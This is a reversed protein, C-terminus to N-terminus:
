PQGAKLRDLVARYGNYPMDRLFRAVRTVTTTSAGVKEAIDRYSLVGQDLLQAVRWREQLARVESPTCIDALFAEAEARTSLALLAAPLDFEAVEQPPTQTQIM